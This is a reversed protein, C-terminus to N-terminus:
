AQGLEERVEEVLPDQIGFADAKELARRAEQEQGEREYALALHAWLVGGREALSPMRPQLLKIVDEHRREEVLVSVSESLLAMNYPDSETVRLYADAAADALAPDFESYARLLRAYDVLAPVKPFADLFSYADRAEDLWRQGEEGRKVAAEGAFFGNLHRYQYDGRFAIARDFDEQGQEPEGTRFSAIGWRVRADNLVFMGAWWVAALAVIAAVAVGAPQRVKEASRRAPKKKAAAGKKKSELAKRSTSRARAGHFSAALGGLVAWFTTRLAVEDISVLSQVFYAAAAALFAVQLLDDPDVTRGRGVVWGAVVIYGLLGLLGAGTLLALPVSHTDDSFDLAHVAADEVPRYRPGDVAYSNPGRGALPHDAAMSLASRWWLARQATTAPVRDSDPNAMAFGVAGLIVVVILSLSVVGLRKAWVSRTSFFFGAFIAGGAVAAAYPGQSFSLVLGAAIGLAIKWAHHAYRDDTQWLAVAIPLVIALFGGTFNPNGLTSTRTTAGGFQQLWTFPDIGISQLVAYAGAIGGAIALAWALQRLHDGFADAVLLGLVIVVLYPILGQFRGYHGFLAWYQYPSFLWAVFLPIVAAAAPLALRRLSRISAGQMVEALRICCVIAVGAILLALKPVNFPDNTFRLFLLPVGATVGMLIWRRLRPGEELISQRSLRLRSMVKAM